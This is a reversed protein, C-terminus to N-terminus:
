LFLAVGFAGGVIALAEAGFSRSRFSDGGNQLHPGATGSAGAAATEAGVVAFSTITTAQGNALTSTKLVLQSVSGGGPTFTTVFTSGKADTATIVQSPTVSSLVLTAGSSDTTTVDIPTTAAKSPTYVPVPSTTVQGNAQTVVAAAVTTSAVVTKGKSNTTTVTQVVSVTASGVASTTLTSTSGDSDTTEVEVPIIVDTQSASTTTVITSTATTTKTTSAETTTSTSTATTTTENSTSRRNILHLAAEALVRTATSPDEKHVKEVALRDHEYVGDQYKDNAHKHLAIHLSEAPLANLLAQFDFLTDPVFTRPEADHQSLVLPAISLISFVLNMISPM